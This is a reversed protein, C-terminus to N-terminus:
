SDSEGGAIKWEVEVERVPFEFREEVVGNPKVEISKSIVHPEDYSPRSSVFKTINYGEHWAIVKYKGPPVGTIEFKGESDTVAFYPHDFAALYGNMHVHVDCQFRIGVGHARTVKKDVERNPTPMAVNFISAHKETFFHPNHLISDFNILAMDATRVYPMVHEEFLCRRSYPDKENLGMHLWYKPEPAKGKEVKELYVLVFRLGKTKPDIQLVPSNIKEGCTDLDAMVKLPPVKPIEGQWVAVGKITGGDTVDVVEYDAAFGNAVSGVTILVGTMMPAIWKRSMSTWSLFQNGARKM